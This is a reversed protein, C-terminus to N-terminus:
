RPNAKKRLYELWQTHQPSKVFDSYMPLASLDGWEMNFGQDLEKLLAITEEFRGKKVSVRILVWYPDDWGLGEDIAKRAYERAADLEPQEFLLLARFLHLYPDGGTWTRIYELEQYAKAHEGHEWFWDISYLHTCPDDPYHQRLDAYAGMRRPDGLSFARCRMLIYTKDKRLEAPLENCLKELADLDGAQAAANVRTLTGRHKAAAREPGFLRDLTSKDDELDMLLLGRRFTASMQEGTQARYMDIARVSADDQRELLFEAYDVPGLAPVFRFLARRAEKDGRLRLFDFHGGAALSQALYDSFWKGGAMKQLALARFERALKSSSEV